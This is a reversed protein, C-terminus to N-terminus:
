SPWVRVDRRNQDQLCQSQLYLADSSAFSDAELVVTEVSLNTVESAVM